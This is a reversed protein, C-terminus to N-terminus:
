RSVCAKERKARVGWSTGRRGGHSSNAGSSGVFEFAEEIFGLPGSPDFRASFKAAVPPDLFMSDLPAPITADTSFAPLLIVVQHDIRRGEGKEEEEEKTWKTAGGGQEEELDTIAELSREGVGYWEYGKPPLTTPTPPPTPPDVKRQQSAWAKESSSASPKAEPQKEEEEEFDSIIAM